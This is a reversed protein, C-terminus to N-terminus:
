ERGRIRDCKRCENSRRLEAQEMANYNSNSESIEVNKQRLIMEVMEIGEEQHNVDSSKRYMKLVVVACLVLTM